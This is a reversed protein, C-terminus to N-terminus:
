LLSSCILTRPQIIQKLITSPKLSYLPYPTQMVHLWSQKWGQCQMDYKIGSLIVGLCVALVLGQAYQFHDWTFSFISLVLALLESLFFLLVM